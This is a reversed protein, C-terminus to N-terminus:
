VNGGSLGGTEKKILIKREATNKYGYSLQILLPTTYASIKNSYDSSPMECIVSGESNIMRILGGSSKVDGDVFPGCM